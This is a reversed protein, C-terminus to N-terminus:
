FNASLGLLVEYTKRSGVLAKAASEPRAYGGLVWWSFHDSNAHDLILDLETAFNKGAGPPLSGFSSGTDLRFNELFIRLRTKQTPKMSFEALNINEDSNFLLTSGIIDGMYYLSWDGWQYNWPYYQEDAHTNAKDGSFHLYSMKIYANKWQGFHLYLDSHYANARLPVDRIVGREWAYEGSFTVRSISGSWRLSTVHADNNTLGTDNRRFHDVGIRLPGSKYSFDMGYLDGKQPGYSRSLRALMAMAHFPGKAYDGRVADWFNLPMTWLAAAHDYYGDGVIFGDGVVIDQRGIKASFGTGAIKDFAINAQDIIGTAKNRIGYYDKGATLLGVVELSGSISDSIKADVHFRSVTENWLYNADGAGSPQFAQSGFYANGVAFNVMGIDGGFTLAPTEGAPKDQASAGMALVGCLVAACVARCIKM